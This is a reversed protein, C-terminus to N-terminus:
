NALTHYSILGWLSCNYQGVAHENDHNHVSDTLSEEQSISGPFVEYM